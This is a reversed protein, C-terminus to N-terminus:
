GDLLLLHSFVACDESLTLNLAVYVKWRKLMQAFVRQSFDFSELHIRKTFNLIIAAM